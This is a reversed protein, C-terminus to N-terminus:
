PLQKIVTAKVPATLLEDLGAYAGTDRAELIAAARVEVSAWDAIEILMDPNGLVQYRSSDLLGPHGPGLRAVVSELLHNLEARKGPKAQFEVIVRIASKNDGSM